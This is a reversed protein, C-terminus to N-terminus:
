VDNSGTLHVTMEIIVSLYYTSSTPVMNGRDATKIKNTLHDLSPLSISRRIFCTTQVTGAVLDDVSKSIKLTSSKFLVQEDSGM